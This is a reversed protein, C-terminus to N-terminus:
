LSGMSGPNLTLSYPKPGLDLIVKSLSMCSDANASLAGCAILMLCFCRSCCFSPSRDVGPQVPAM